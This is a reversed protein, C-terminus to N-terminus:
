QFNMAMSIRNNSNSANSTIVYAITDGAVVSVTHVLDSGTTTALITAATTGTTCTLTTPSGNKYLTVTIQYANATGVVVKVRLNSLTGSSAVVQELFAESLTATAIGGSGQVVTSFSTSGIAGVSIMLMQPSNGPTGSQILTWVPTGPTGSNYYFGATGDTQYVMLGTAPTSILGKQAATVRPLLLGATTSTIDLAASTNPSTTGIGVQAKIAASLLVFTILLINKMIFLQKYRFHYL